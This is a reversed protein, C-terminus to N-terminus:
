LREESRVRVSEVRNGPDCVPFFGCAKGDPLEQSSSMAACVEDMCTALLYVYSCLSTAAFSQRPLLKQIGGNLAFCCLGARQLRRWARLGEDVVLVLMPARRQLARDVFPVFM